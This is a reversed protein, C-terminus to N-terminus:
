KLVTFRDLKKYCDDCCFRQIFIFGPRAISLDQYSQASAAVERDKWAQDGEEWDESSDRVPL